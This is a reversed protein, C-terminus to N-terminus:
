PDFTRADSPHPTPSFSVRRKQSQFFLCHSLQPPIVKPKQKKGWMVIRRVRHLLNGGNRREGGVNTRLPDVRPRAAPKLQLPPRYGGTNRQNWSFGASM